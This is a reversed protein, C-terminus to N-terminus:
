PLKNPEDTNTNAHLRLRFKAEAQMQILTGLSRFFATAAKQLMSDYPLWEDGCNPCEKKIFHGERSADLGFSANCKKCVFEVSRIDQPEILLRHESTM